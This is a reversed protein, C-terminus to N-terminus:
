DLQTELPIRIQVRTGHGVESEVLLRHEQGYLAQLRKDVNRLGISHNNDQEPNLIEALRTANIGPGNDQVQLLLDGDLPQITIKVTGGGPNRAIGHVVANEVIPQLILTPVPHDLLTPLNPPHTTLQSTPQISWEIQLREDFRAKELALYAEAYSIEDRLPVFEGSRLARQFIESLDLLLRRATESDTRVFYRITNLANFLFHPNIQARLARLEAQTLALAAAEAQRRAAETQVGRVILAVIALTLGSMLTGPFLFELVPATRAVFMLILIGLDIVLGLLLAALPAFRRKGILDACLGTATGAWLASSVGLNFVYHKLLGHRGITNLWGLLGDAQLIFPLEPPVCPFFRIFFHTGRLLMSVLGLGLGIKWGSLLGGAIVVLDVMSMMGLEPPENLLRAFGLHYSHVLLQILALTAFLKLPDRPNAKGSAVRRFLATNSFLYILTIPVIALQVIVGIGGPHFNSRLLQDQTLSPFDPDPPTVRRAYLALAFAALTVLAAAGALKWRPPTDGASKHDNEVM